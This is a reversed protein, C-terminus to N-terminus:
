PSARLDAVDHDGLRTGSRECDFGLVFARIYLCCARLRTEFCGNCGGKVISLGAAVVGELGERWRKSPSVHTFRCQLTFGFQVQAFRPSTVVMVCVWFNCVHVSAPSQARCKASSQQSQQAKPSVTNDLSSVGSSPGSITRGTNVRGM